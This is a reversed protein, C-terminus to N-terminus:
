SLLQSKQSFFYFMEFTFRFIQELVLVVNQTSTNEREALSLSTKQLLNLCITIMPSMVNWSTMNHIMAFAVNNSNLENVSISINRLFSNDTFAKLESHLKKGLAKQTMDEM